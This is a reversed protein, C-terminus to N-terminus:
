RMRARAPARHTPTAPRQECSTAWTPRSPRTPTRRPALVPPTPGTLPATQPAKGVALHRRHSHRRPDTVEATLAEGVRPQGSPSITVNGPEDENTVTVTVLRSVSLDGSTAKVTVNYVNNTGQDAPNEFDPTARFTLEGSSSIRFDGADDGELTWAAGTADPGSARYTEVANTGNEPYSISRDGSIVLARKMIEPAEDVDTVEVTVTITDSALYPDTATVIVTYRNKAEYNLDAKTSLQGDAPGLVFSDKDPGGLTYTLTEPTANALDTASVPSPGTDTTIGDGDADEDGTEGDIDYAGVLETGSGTDEAVKRVAQNGTATGDQDPFTPATNDPNAAKVQRDQPLAESSVTEEATGVADTYTVMAVLSTGLDGEVPTYTPSTAGRIESNGSVWKWTRNTMGGDPDTLKATIPVGVAPQRNSLTVSGEEEMNTVTVAVDRSATMDSSDIVM